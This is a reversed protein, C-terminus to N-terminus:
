LIVAALSLNWTDLWQRWVATSFLLLHILRGWHCFARIPRYLGCSWAAAASKM